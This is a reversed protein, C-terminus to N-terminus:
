KSYQLALDMIIEEYTKNYKPRYDGLSSDRILCITNTFSYIPFKQVTQYAKFNLDYSSQIIQNVYSNVLIKLNFFQESSQMLKEAQIGCLNVDEDDGM